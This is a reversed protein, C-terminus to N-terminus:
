TLIIANYLAAVTSRAYAPLALSSGLWGDVNSMVASAVRFDGKKNRNEKITNAPLM